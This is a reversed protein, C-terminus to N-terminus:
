DAPMHDLSHIGIGSVGRGPSFVMSPAWGDKVFMSAAHESFGEDILWAKMEDLSEFVPSTPTGESVTEYIQHHTPESEFKQRYYKPNPSGGDWDRFHEPYDYGDDKQDPHKGAEWLANNKTWESFATEHDEDYLAIFHGNRKPHIWNSPVRRIERGMMRGKQYNEDFDVVDSSGCEPCLENGYEEGTQPVLDWIDGIWGCDLCIM